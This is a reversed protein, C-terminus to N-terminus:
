KIQVGLANYRIGNHIIYIQGNEIVKRAKTQVAPQELATADRCDDGVIYHVRETFLVHLEYPLQVLFIVEEGTTKGALTYRAKTGLWRMPIPNGDLVENGGDNKFLFLQPAAMGPFYDLFEMEIEVNGSQMTSVTWRYGNTFVDSGSAAADHATYFEDVATSVESCSGLVADGQSPNSCDQGVTYLIRETFLIKGAELAVQVLFVLDSGQALGTLTHAATRTTPNWEAMPIPNGILVGQADFTFLMPAAMGPLNDLFEVTINVGTTTTEAKWNFGQTLSQVAFQPNANTYFPDVGTSTGSCSGTQSGQPTDPTDPQDPNEPKDPNNPDNPDEYDGVEGDCNAGVTYRIRESFLVHLEYSLQVLFVIETGKTLGTLTYRAKTGVWRMPIPDGDLVENGGDNKFLFLQPAAMGPFYDLFNVEIEVNGSQMTKVSWDYGKTFADSGAAAPNASTYYEDVGKSNGSCEAVVNDTADSGDCNSGVTYIIRETFLIKGAELAVQVLFVLDSGQALGTLTHAATRTTPNWEAMLIPNGILVGQADFTFLMPAAMGPLNDLFQMTVKVGAATTEASWTYGQQLSSVAFQPNANTYFADVATSSGTCIASVSVSISLVAVFLLFIKKM